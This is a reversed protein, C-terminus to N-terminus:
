GKMTAALRLGGGFMVARMEAPMSEVVALAALTDFAFMREVEDRVRETSVAGLMEVALPSVMAAMTSAEPTLGKTVMFRFGRLVRLGDETIRQVPDGVFRLTRAAM